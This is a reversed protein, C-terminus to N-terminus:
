DVAAKDDCGVRRKQISKPIVTCNGQTPSIALCADPTGALLIKLDEDTMSVTDYVPRCCSKCLRTRDSVKVLAEWQKELPCHLTKLFEGSDTFLDAMQPDIKM